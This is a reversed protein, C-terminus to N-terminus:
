RPSWIALTSEYMMATNKSTGMTAGDSPAATSTTPSQRQTKAKKTPAAASAASHDVRRGSVSGGLLADRQAQRAAAPLRAPDHDAAAEGHAEGDGLHGDEPEEGRVQGRGLQDEASTNPRPAHNGITKPPAESISPAAISKLGRSM